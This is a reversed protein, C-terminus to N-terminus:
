FFANTEIVFNKTFDLLYLMPLESLVKKLNDFPTTAASTWHFPDKKLLETLPAAISAYHHVFRHYYGTLGLFGHLVM